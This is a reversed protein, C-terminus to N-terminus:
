TPPTADLLRQMARSQADIFAAFGNPDLAIAENHSARLRERLVPTRLADAVAAHLQATRRPDMGGPAFLGFVSVLDAQPLGFEGLTPVQPLAPVRAPASVALARLHGSDVHRLPLPAVNTSLLEFRGALADNLQPGGGTYPVHTVSAGAHRSVQRLVMHGLTGHGSTAWRLAGPRARAQARLDEFRQGTFAPTGVVLLPASLVPIVPTLARRLASAEGRQGDLWPSLTLPTVASLALTHGDAAARALAALALRGGAGPRNEVLVPVGLSRTLVDALSRGIGDSMGGAAYAM